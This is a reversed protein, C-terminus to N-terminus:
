EPMLNFRADVVNGDVLVANPFRPTASIQRVFVTLSQRRPLIAETWDTVLELGADPFELRPWSLYALGPSDHMLDVVLGGDAPFTLSGGIVVPAVEIGQFALDVPYEGRGFLFRAECRGWAGDQAPEIIVDYFSTEGPRVPGPDLVSVRGAPGGPACQTRVAVSRPELTNDPGPASTNAIRLRRREGRGRGVVRTIFGADLVPQVELRLSGGEGAVEVPFQRGNAEFAIVGEVRGIRDPVFTVTFTSSQLPPVTVQRPFVSFSPSGSGARVLLQNSLRNTVVLSQTRPQGVPVIGFFTSSSVALATEVVRPGLCRGTNLCIAAGPTLLEVCVGGDAAAAVLGLGADEGDLVYEGPRPSVHVFSGALVVGSDSLEEGCDSVVPLVGPELRSPLGVCGVAAGLVAM